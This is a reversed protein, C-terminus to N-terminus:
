LTLVETLDKIKIVKSPIEFRVLDPVWVAQMNANIAAEIGSKSDELVLCREPQLNFHKSCNLFIEPNPKSQKFDEGSVIYDFYATLNTDKLNDLILQKSSSSALAIKKNLSKLYNLAEILGKKIPVGNHRLEYELMENREEKLDLFSINTDYYKEFLIKSDAINRGKISDLFEKNFVLSHSALIKAWIKEALVETDFMLGDM